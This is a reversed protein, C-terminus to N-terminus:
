CQNEEKNADRETGDRGKVGGGKKGGGWDDWREERGAGRGSYRGWDTSAWVFLLLIVM